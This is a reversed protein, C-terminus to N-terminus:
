CQDPDENHWAYQDSSFQNFAQEFTFSIPGIWNPNEQKLKEIAPRKLSFIWYQDDDLGYIGYVIEPTEMGM